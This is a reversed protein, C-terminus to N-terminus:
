LLSSNYLKKVIKKVSTLKEEDLQIWLNFSDILNTLLLSETNKTIYEFPDNINEM